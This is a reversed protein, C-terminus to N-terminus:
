GVHRAVAVEILLCRRRPSKEPPQSNQLWNCFRAADGWSVCFIPCNVAEVVPVFQLSTQGTPMIFVDAKGVVAVAMVAVTLLGRTLFKAFM